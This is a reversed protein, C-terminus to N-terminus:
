IYHKSCKAGVSDPIYCQKMYLAQQTQSRCQGGYVVEGFIRGEGYVVKGLYKRGWINGEWFLVEIKLINSDL